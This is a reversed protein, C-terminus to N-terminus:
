QSVKLVRSLTDLSHVVGGIAKEAKNLGVDESIATFGEAENLSEMLGDRQIALQSEFVHDALSRLRKVIDDAGTWAPHSTQLHSVRDILHNADNYLQM